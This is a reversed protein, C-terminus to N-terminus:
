GDDDGRLAALRRADDRADKRIKLVAAGGAGVFLMLSAGIWTSRFDWGTLGIVIWAIVLGGGVSLAAGVVFIVWELVDLRRVARRTVARAREVAEQDPSAGM